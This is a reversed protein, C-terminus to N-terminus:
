GRRSGSTRRRPAAPTSRRRRVSPHTAISRAQPPPLFEVVEATAPEDNPSDLAARLREDYEGKKDASLLCIKAASLENLLKQSLKSNKGTQFTRMHSMQRDAAREIVNPNDEFSEIGLLRYHDPPQYKPPIGLWEHYPDFEQSM